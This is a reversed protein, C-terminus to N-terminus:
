IKKWIFLDKKWTRFYKKIEWFAGWYFESNIELILKDLKTM